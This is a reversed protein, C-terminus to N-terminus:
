IQLPLVIRRISIVGFGVVRSRAAYLPVSLFIFLKLAKPELRSMARSFFMSHHIGIKKWSNQLVIEVAISFKSPKLNRLHKMMQLGTVKAMMSKSLLCSGLLIWQSPPNEPQIGVYTEMMLQLISMSILLNPSPCHYLIFYKDISESLLKCCMKFTHLLQPARRWPKELQCQLM